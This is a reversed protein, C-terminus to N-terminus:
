SPIDRLHSEACDQPSVNNKRETIDISPFCISNLNSSITYVLLLIIPRRTLGFEMHQVWYELTESSQSSSFDRHHKQEVHDYSM